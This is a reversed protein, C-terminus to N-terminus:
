FLYFQAEFEEVTIGIELTNGNIFTTPVGKIGLEVREKSTKKIQRALERNESMDLNLFSIVEEKSDLSYWDDQTTYIKSLEEYNTLQNETLHKYIVGDYEFKELDIAKMVLQIDDNEIYKELVERYTEHFRSCRLCRFSTYNIIEIPADHNGYILNEIPKRQQQYM